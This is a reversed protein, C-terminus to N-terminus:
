QTLIEFITYELVWPVWYPYNDGSQYSNTPTPHMNEHKPYANQPDAQSMCQKSIGVFFGFAGLNNPIAMVGFTDGISHNKTIALTCM